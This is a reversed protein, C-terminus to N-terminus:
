GSSFLLIWVTKCAPSIRLCWWRRRSPSLWPMIETPVSIPLIRRSLPLRVMSQGSCMNRLFPQRKKLLRRSGHMGCKLQIANRGQLQIDLFLLDPKHMLISALAADFNDCDDVIEIQAAFAELKQLLSLRPLLEDEVVITRLRDM